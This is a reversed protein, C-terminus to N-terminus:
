GSKMTGRMHNQNLINHQRSICNKQTAQVYPSLIGYDLWSALGSNFRTACGALCRDHWVAKRCYIACVFQSFLAVSYIVTQPRYSAWLTVGILRLSRRKWYFSDKGLTSTDPSKWLVFPESVHGKSDIPTFTSVDCRWRVNANIPWRIWVFGHYARLCSISIEKGIKNTLVQHTHYSAM